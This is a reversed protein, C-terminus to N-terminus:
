RTMTFTGPAMSEAKGGVSYTIINYWQGLV